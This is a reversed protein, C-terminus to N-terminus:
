QLVEFPRRTLREAISNSIVVVRGHFGPSTKLLPSYALQERGLRRPWEPLTVMWSYRDRSTANAKGAIGVEAETKHTGNIRVVALLNIAIVFDSAPIAKAIAELTEIGHGKPGCPDNMVFAYRYGVLMPLIKAHDGIIRVFRLHGFNEILKARREPHKECLIVDANGDQEAARVLLGASAISLDPAFDENLLSHQWLQVGEGDHATTDILLVRGQFVRRAKWFQQMTFNFVSHKKGSNNSKGANEYGRKRPKRATTPLDSFLDNM